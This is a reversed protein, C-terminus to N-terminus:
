PLHGSQRLTAVIETKGAGSNLLPILLSSFRDDRQQKQLLLQQQLQRVQRRGLTVARHSRHPLTRSRYGYHGVPLGQELMDDDLHIAAQRTAQSLTNMAEDFQDGLQDFASIWIVSGHLQHQASLWRAVQELTLDTETAHKRERDLMMLKEDAVDSQTSGAEFRRSLLACADIAASHGARNDSVALGKDQVVIVCLRSGSEIAQWLLRATLQCARASRLAKTGTFMSRRLDTVLTVRHEREERYLRTYLVNSRASAKWDVHRLEDGASYPRLDDFDTGHGRREGRFNGAWQGTGAPQRLTSERVTHRENLLSELSVTVSADASDGTHGTGTNRM